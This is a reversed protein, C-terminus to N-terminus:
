QPNPPLATCQTRCVVLQYILPYFAWLTDLSTAIWKEESSCFLLIQTLDDPSSCQFTVLLQIIRFPQDCIEGSLSFTLLPNCGKRVQALASNIVDRSIDFLSDAFFEHPIGFRYAKGLHGAPEKTQLERM